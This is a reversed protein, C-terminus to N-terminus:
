LASYSWKGQLTFSKGAGTQGYAFITGNYGQLVEDVVERFTGDYLDCQTSSYLIPCNLELGASGQYVRGKCITYIWILQSWLGIQM